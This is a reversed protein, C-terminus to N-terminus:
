PCLLKGKNTFRRVHCPIDQRLCQDRMNLSGPSGEPVTLILARGAVLAMEANRIFGASRNQIKPLQHITEGYRAVSLAWERQKAWAPFFEVPVSFHRAWAYGAKDVGDACGCVLVDPLCAILSSIQAITPNLSRSGAIILRDLM